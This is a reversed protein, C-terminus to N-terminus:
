KIKGCEKALTSKNYISKSGNGCDVTSTNVVYEENEELM